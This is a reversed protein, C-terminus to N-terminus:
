RRNKSRRDNIRKISETQKDLMEKQDKLIAEQEERRMRYIEQLPDDARQKPKESASSSPSLGLTEAYGQWADEDQKDTDGKIRAKEQATLDM